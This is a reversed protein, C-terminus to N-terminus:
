RRESAHIVSARLEGDSQPRRGDTGVVATVAGLSLFRIRMELTHSLRDALEHVAALATSTWTSWYTDPGMVALDPRGAAAHLGYRDKIESVFDQANAEVIACYALAELLARLPTDRKSTNTTVKLEVVAVRGSATLAVIDVKGIGADSQRAKLPVQYDLLQLEDSDGLAIAAHDNCLAIALHEELRNSPGVASPVGSHGVFYKKDRAHRHPATDRLALYMMHLQEVDISSATAGFKSVLRVDRSNAFEILEM